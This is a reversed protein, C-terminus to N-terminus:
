STLALVVHDLVAMGRRRQAIGEADGLRAHAQSGRAHHDGDDAITGEGPTHGVLRQVLDGVEFRGVQHHDDVVVAAGVGGRNPAEGTVQGLKGYAGSVLAELLANRFAQALDRHHTLAGVLRGEPELFADLLQNLRGVDELAESQFVGARDGAVVQTHQLLYQLSGLQEVLGGDDVDNGLLAAAVSWREVVLGLLHV